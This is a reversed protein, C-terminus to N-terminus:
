DPCSLATDKKAPVRPQQLYLTEIDVTLGRKEALGCEVTLQPQGQRPYSWAVYVKEEGSPVVSVQWM